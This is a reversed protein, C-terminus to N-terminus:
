KQKMNWSKKDIDGETPFIVKVSQRSPSYMHSTTIGKSGLINNLDQKIKNDKDQETGTTYDNRNYKFILKLAM